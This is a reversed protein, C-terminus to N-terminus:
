AERYRNNEFILAQMNPKDMRPLSIHIWRKGNHDEKILQGYILNEKCWSFVKEIDVQLTFDAAEALLHQSTSSTPAGQTKQIAEHVAKSRFGSTVHIPGFQDRVPQLLYNAVLLLKYKEADNPVNSVGTDTHTLEELTFNRSLNM